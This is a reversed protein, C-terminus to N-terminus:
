YALENIDMLASFVGLIMSGVTLGVVVILVPALLSSFLSMRREFNLRAEDVVITLVDALKGGTEGVSIIHLVKKPILPVSALAQSLTRGQRVLDVSRAASVKSGPFGSAMFANSVAIALPARRSLYLQLTAAFRQTASWRLGEGLVPFRFAFHLATERVRPIRSAAVVICLLLVGCVLVATWHQTAFDSLVTMANIIFPMPRDLSKFLNALNPAVFVVLLVLILFAVVLLFAPYALAGLLLKEFQLREGYAAALTALSRELSATEEGVSILSLFDSPFEFGTQRLATSFPQGLRMSQRASQCVSYTRSRKPLTAMLTSLADVVEMGARLLISLEACFAQCESNSLRKGFIRIERSWFPQSLARDSIRLPKFGRATLKKLADAQDKAVLQGSAIGGEASTARFHFTQGESAM